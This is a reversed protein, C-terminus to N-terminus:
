DSQPLAWEMQLSPKKPASITIYKEAIEGGGKEEVRIGFQREILIM